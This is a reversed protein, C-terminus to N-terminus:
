IWPDLTLFSYFIFWLVAVKSGWWEEEQAMWVAIWANGFWLPATGIGTDVHDLEGTKLLDLLFCLTNSCINRYQGYNVRYQFLSEPSFEALKTSGL